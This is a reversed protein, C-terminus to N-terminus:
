RVVGSLIPKPSVIVQRAPREDSKVEFALDQNGCIKEYAKQAADTENDAEILTTHTVLFYSM